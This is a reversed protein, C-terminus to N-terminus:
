PIAQTKQQKRQLLLTQLLRVYDQADSNRERNAKGNSIATLPMTKNKINLHLFYTCHSHVM